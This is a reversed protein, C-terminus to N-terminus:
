PPLFRLPNQPTTGRRVEFHLHPGTARGTQGVKGLLQGKNVAQGKRVLNRDNHAYVTVLGSTHKVVVLNGYSGHTASFLVEGAAAARVASGTPASIDIGDHARGSRQGFRSTITGNVPWTLPYDGDDVPKGTKKHVHVKPAPKKASAVRKITPPKVRALAQQVPAVGKGLKLEQGVSIATPDSLHNLASLTQVSMGHDKSIRWLTEGKKVIHTRANSATVDAGPTSLAVVRMPRKKYHSNVHGNKAGVPGALACCCLLAMGSISLIRISVPERM